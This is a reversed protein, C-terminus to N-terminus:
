AGKPRLPVKLNGSADSPLAERNWSWGPGVEKLGWGQCAQSGALCVNLQQFTVQYSRQGPSQWPVSPDLISTPPFGLEWLHVSQSAGPPISPPWFLSLLFYNRPGPLITTQSTPSPAGQESSLAQLFTTPPASLLGSPLCSQAAPMGVCPISSTPSPLSDQNILQTVKSLNYLLQTQNRM